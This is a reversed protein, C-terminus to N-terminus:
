DANLFKVELIAKVETDNEVLFNPIEIAGWQSVLSGFENLAAIALEYSLWSGGVRPTAVRM